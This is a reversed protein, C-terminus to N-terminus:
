NETPVKDVHDIVLVDLSANTKVLRLGLQKELAVSLTPGGNGVGDPNALNTPLMSGAFELSFDFVGALVTKDLVHAIAPGVALVGDGNAMNVLQGLVEAFQSMTQRHATRVMGDFTRMALPTGPPRVPYAYPPKNRGFPASGDDSNPPAPEMRPGGAVTHLEYVPFDKKDIHLTLHFREALLNRLMLSFNAKSTDPPMKAAISYAETSLWDPGSIQDRKVGYAVILLERLKVRPYSIREPNDTGPGGRMEYDAGDVYPPAPRVSAVEFTPLADAVQDGQSGWAVFAMSVTGIVLRIMQYREMRGTYQM